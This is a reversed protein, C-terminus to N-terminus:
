CSHCFCKPKGLTQIRGAAAYWYTSAMCEFMSLLLLCFFFSLLLCCLMQKSDAFMLLAPISSRTSLVVSTCRYQLVLQQLAAWRVEIKANRGLLYFLSMTCAVGLVFVLFFAFGSMGVLWEVDSSAIIITFVFFPICLITTDFLLQAGWYASPEIGTLLKVQKIM